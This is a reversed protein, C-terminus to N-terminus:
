ASAASYSCTQLTPWPPVLTKAGHHRPFFQLFQARREIITRAARMSLDQEVLAKVDQQAAKPLASIAGARALFSEAPIGNACIIQHRDFM